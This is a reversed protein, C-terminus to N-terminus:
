RKRRKTNRGGSGSETHEEEDVTDEIPRKLSYWEMVQDRLELYRILVGPGVKSIILYTLRELEEGARSEEFPSTM